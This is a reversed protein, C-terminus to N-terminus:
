RPITLRSGVFIKNPNALRNTRAIRVWSYGDGYLRSAIKWLSDGRVVVYSTVTEMAVERRPPPPKITEAKPIRLEQGVFIIDPLSLKNEQAISVWNYGSDYYKMAIKWLSEGQAVTHKAPLETKQAEETETISPAQIGPLTVNGGRSRLFNFLTVGIVVVVLLGVAMSIYSESRQIKKFLKGSSVM